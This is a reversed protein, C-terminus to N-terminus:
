CATLFRFGELGYSEEMQAGWQGIREDGLLSRSMGVGRCGKSSKEVAWFIEKVESPNYRYLHFYM